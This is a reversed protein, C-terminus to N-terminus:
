LSGPGSQVEDLLMRMTEAGSSPQDLLALRLGQLRSSTSCYHATISPLGLYACWDPAFVPAHFSIESCHIM